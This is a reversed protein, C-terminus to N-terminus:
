CVSASVVAKTGESGTKEICIKQSGKGIKASGMIDIKDYDVTIRYDSQKAGFDEQVEDATLARNYIQVEDITGNFQKTSTDERGIYSPADFVVSTANIRDQVGNLFMAMHTSNYTWVGYYWIDSSLATNAEYVTAGNFFALYNTLRVYFLNVGLRAIAQSIGMKSPKFWASVTFSTGPNITNTLNVYDNVGDFQIGYGDKGTVQKSFVDEGGTFIQGDNKQGSNDLTYNTSNIKNLRWYGVLGRTSLGTSTKINGDIQVGLFSFSNYDMKYKFEVAGTNNGSYNFIRYDGDNILLTVARFSGTGESAVEKIANDIVQMNKMAENTIGAEKARNVAPLGIMLVISVSVTTILVLLVSTIVEAAGKSM